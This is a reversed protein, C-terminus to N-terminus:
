RGSLIAKLREFSPEQGQGLYKAAGRATEMYVPSLAEMHRCMEDLEDEEVESVIPTPYRGIERYAHFAVYM